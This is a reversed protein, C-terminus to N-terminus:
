EHSFAELHFGTAGIRLGARGLQGAKARWVEFSPRKISLTSSRQARNLTEEVDRKDFEARLASDALCSSSM